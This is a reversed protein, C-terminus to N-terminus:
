LRRRVRRDSHHDINLGINSSSTRKKSSQQSSDEDVVAIMELLESLLSPFSEELIKFGESKMMEGLNGSIAAYKLCVTKLQSCHHQEALVLTTAVTETTVEECLKAECLLKLRDIGFRDAAALLHQVLITSTCHNFESALEHLDPLEDSYMFILMAKFVAPEVDEVVVKDMNPNGILGFFQAKFVPSRAALILKHARFIEEGVEFAIDFGIGSDLLEKFNRGMDSSPMSITYQKPGETRTRVVGVTCDMVLSDDKLYDSTELSLRKYFRKYGWMSGRYKLTYPGSEPTKNFHTHVKDKGNGSQDRLTLEFLARVDTADSALAIFVSVYVANDEANKGDPYFYIAWDHGGVNFVDSTLYKGAGMGKALSYGKITYRHSGNVTDNISKSCSDQSSGSISRRKKNGTLKIDHKAM